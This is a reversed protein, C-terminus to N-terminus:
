GQVKGLGQRAEELARSLEVRLGNATRGVEAALDKWPRGRRHHEEFLYRHRECLRSLLRELLQADAAQRERREVAALPGEDRGAVGDLPTGPAVVPLRRRHEALEGIRHRLMQTLYNLLHQEGEISGPGNRRLHEFFAPLVWGSVSSETHGPLPSAVLLARCVRAVQPQFRRAFEAWAAADGEALRQLFEQFSPDM